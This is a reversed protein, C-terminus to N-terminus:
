GQNGFYVRITNATDSYGSFSYFARYKKGEITVDRAQWVSKMGGDVSIGSVDEAQNQDNPVLVFIRKARTETRSLRIVGSTSSFQGAGGINDPFTLGYEAYIKPIGTPLKPQENAEPKLNAIKADILKNVEKDFVVQSPAFINGVQTEINSIKTLADQQGSKLSAIDQNISTLDVAGTDRFWDTWTTGDKYKVWVTNQGNTDRGVAMIMAYESKSTKILSNKFIMLEGVSDTPKNAVTATSKTVWFGDALKQIDTNDPALGHDVTNMVQASTVPVEQQEINGEGVVRWSNPKKILLAYRNHRVTYQIANDVTDGKTPILTIDAEKNANYIYFIVGTKIGGLPNPLNINKNLAPMNKLEVFYAQRFSSPFSTLPPNKTDGSYTYFNTISAIDAELKGYNTKLAGIDEGQLKLDTEFKALETQIGSLDTTPIVISHMSGDAHNVQLVGDTLSISTVGANAQGASPLNKIASADLRDAQKLSSLLDRVNEGNLPVKLDKLKERFGADDVNGLDKDLKQTLDPTDRLDNYSVRNSGQLNNIEQGLKQPTVGLDVGSKKLATEFSTKDVNSFDKELKSGDLDNLDKEIEAIKQQVQKYTPLNDITSQGTYALNTDVTYNMRYSYSLIEKSNSDQDEIMIILTNSGSARSISETVPISIIGDASITVDFEADTNDIMHKTEDPYVIFVTVDATTKPTQSRGDQTVTAQLVTDQSGQLIHQRLVNNEANTDLSVKLIRKEM